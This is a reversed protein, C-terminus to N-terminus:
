AHCSSHVVLMALCEALVVQLVLTDVDNTRCDLTNWFGRLSLHSSATALTTKYYKWHLIMRSLDIMFIKQVGQDICHCDVCRRLNCVNSVHLLCVLKCCAM